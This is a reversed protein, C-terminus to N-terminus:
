FIFNCTAFFVWMFVGDDLLFNFMYSHYINKKEIQYLAIIINM